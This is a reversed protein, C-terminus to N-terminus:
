RYENNSNGYISDYTYERSFVTAGDGNVAVLTLSKYGNRFMQRIDRMADSSNSLRRLVAGSRGSRVQYVLPMSACEMMGGDGRNMMM